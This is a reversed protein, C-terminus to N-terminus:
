NGIAVRSGPTSGTYLWTHLGVTDRIMLGTYKAATKWPGTADPDGANTAFNNIVTRTGHDVVKAGPWSIITDEAGADVLVDIPQNLSQNPGIMNHNAGNTVHIAANTAPIETYNASYGFFNGAIVNSSGYLLLEDAKGAGGNMATGAETFNNNVIRSEGHAWFVNASLETCAACNRVFANGSVTLRNIADTPNAALGQMANDAIINDQIATYFDRGQLSIGTGNGDFSSDQIKGSDMSANGLLTFGSTLNAYVMNNFHSQDLDGSVLIGSCDYFPYSCVSTGAGWLYVGDIDQGGIRLKGKPQGITIASGKPASVRLKCGTVGEAVGNPDISYGRASCVLHIGPHDINLMSSASTLDYRGASLRVQGGRGANLRDIATQIGGTFDTSSKWPSHESGDGSTALSEPSIQRDLVSRKNDSQASCISSLSFVILPLSALTILRM